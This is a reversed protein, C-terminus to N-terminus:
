TSGYPIYANVAIRTSGPQQAMWLYGGTGLGPLIHQNSGNSDMQAVFDNHPLDGYIYFISNGGPSFSPNFERQTSTTLQHFCQPNEQAFVMGACGLAMTVGLFCAAAYKKIRQNHM